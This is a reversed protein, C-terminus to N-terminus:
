KRVRGGRRLASALAPSRDCYAAILLADEELGLTQAVDAIASDSPLRIGLELSRVFTYSLGLRRAFSVRSEDGRSRRLIVGLSEVGDSGTGLADHM